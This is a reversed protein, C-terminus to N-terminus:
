RQGSRAHRFLRRVAAAHKGKPYDRLYRKSWRQAQGKKSAAKQGIAQILAFLVDQRFPNPDRKDSNRLYRRYIPICAEGTRKWNYCRTAASSLHRRRGEQSGELYYLRLWLRYACGPKRYLRQAAANLSHIMTDVSLGPQQSWDLALQCHQSTGHAAFWRLGAEASAFSRKLLPYASAKGKLTLRAGQGKHVLRTHEKHEIAVTGHQVEVRIWDQLQEVTFRTGKVVVQSDGKWSVVFSKMTGPTVHVQIKGTNLKVHVQKPSPMTLKLKTGGRLSAKWLGKHGIQARKHLPVQLAYTTRTQTSPLPQVQLDGKAEWIRRQTPPTTKQPQSPVQLFVLLAAAAALPAGLRALRQWSWRSSLPTQAQEQTWWPDKLLEDQVREMLAQERASSTEWTSEQLRTDRDERIHPDREVM